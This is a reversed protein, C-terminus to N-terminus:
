FNAPCAWVTLHLDSAPTMHRAVLLLVAQDIWTMYLVPTRRRFEHICQLHVQAPTLHRTQAGGLRQAGRPMLAHKKAREEAAQM